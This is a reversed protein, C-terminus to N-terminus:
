PEPTFGTPLPVNSEELSTFYSRQPIGNERLYQDFEKNGKEKNAPDIYVYFIGESNDYIFTFYNGSYPAKDILKSIESGLPHESEETKFYKEMEKPLDRSPSPPVDKFITNSSLTSFVLYLFVFFLVLGLLVLLALKRKDKNVNNMKDFDLM